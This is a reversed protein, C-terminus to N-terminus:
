RCQSDDIDIFGIRDNLDIIDVFFYFGDALLKYFIKNEAFVVVVHAVFEEFVVVVDSFHEAKIFHCDVREFFLGIM